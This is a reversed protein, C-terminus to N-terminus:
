KGSLNTGLFNRGTAKCADLVSFGGAAPDIVLDGEQTVAEILASQLGLPKSHAHTMKIKETWVSPIDHRKWTEKPRGTGRGIIKQIIVLYEAQNRERYGMLMRAKDWVILGKVQLNTHHKNESSKLWNNEIGQMLEFKDVWLFLYGDDVLVRDFESLFECIVEKSMQVLQCREKGRNKGENGFSLKDLIGRYQPDFFGCKLSQAKQAQLLELGNGENKFNKKFTM